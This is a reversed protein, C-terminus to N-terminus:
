AEELLSFEVKIGWDKEKWNAFTLYKDWEKSLQGKEKENFFREEDEENILYGYYDEGAEDETEFQRGEKSMLIFRKENSKACNIVNEKYNLEKEEHTLKLLYMSKEFILIKIVENLISSSIDDAIGIIKNNNYIYKNRIYLGLGFHHDFVSPHQMLFFISRNDLELIVKEIIKKFENSNGYSNGAWFDNGSIKEYMSKVKIKDEEIIEKMDIKYFQLLKIFEESEECVQFKTLEETTLKRKSNEM